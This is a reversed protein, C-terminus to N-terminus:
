WRYLQISIIWNKVVPLTLIFTKHKINVVDIGQIKLYKFVFQSMNAGKELKLDVESKYEAM